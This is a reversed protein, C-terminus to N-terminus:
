RALARGVMPLAQTCRKNQMDVTSPRKKPNCSYFTISYCCFLCMSRRYKGALEVEAVANRFSVTRLREQCHLPLNQQSLFPNEECRMFLIIREEEELTFIDDSSPVEQLFKCFPHGEM